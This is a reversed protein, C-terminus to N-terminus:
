AGPIRTAGRRRAREADLDVVNSHLRIIDAEIDALMPGNLRADDLQRRASEADYGRRELTTKLASSRDIYEALNVLTRSAHRVRPRPDDALVEDLIRATEHMTKTIRTGNM